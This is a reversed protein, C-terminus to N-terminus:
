LVIQVLWLLPLLPSTNSAVLRTSDGLSVYSDAPWDLQLIYTKNLFLIFHHFSIIFGSVFFKVFWSISPPLWCVVFVIAIAMKLVNRERQQPYIIAILVLPIFHYPVLISVTYNDFYSSEGVVESWHLEFVFRETYQVLKYAFLYPSILAM